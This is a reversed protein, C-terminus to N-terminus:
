DEVKSTTIPANLTSAQVRNLLNSRAVPDAFNIPERDKPLMSYGATAVSELISGAIAMGPTVGRGLLSPLRPVDVPIKVSTMTPIGATANYRYLENNYRMLKTAMFGLESDAQDRSIEGRKVAEMLLGIATTYGTKTDVDGLPEMIKSGLHTKSFEPDKALQAVPLPAYFNNEGRTIDKAYTTASELLEANTKEKSPKGGPGMIKQSRSTSRRIDALEDNLKGMLASQGSSLNPHATANFELAAVPTAAITPIGGTAIAHGAQYNIAATAAYAPNFKLYSVFEDYSKFSLTGTYESGANIRALISNEAEARSTKDSLALELSQRQLSAQERQAEIQADQVEAARISRMIDFTNNKLSTVAQIGAANTKLADIELATVKSNIGAQAVRAAAHATATTQSQAIADQTARFSQVSSNISSIQERTSKVQDDVAKLKRENFPLLLYDALWRVPESFMTRPNNANEVRAAVERQREGLANSQQILNALAENALGPVAGATSAFDLTAKQANAVAMAETAKILGVDEATGKEIDQIDKITSVQQNFLTELATAAADNRTIAAQGEAALDSTPTTATAMSPKGTLQNAINTRKAIAGATDRPREYFQSVVAAADGASTTKALRRGASQEKGARLEHDIFAVQEELSSERIDKGSFEKFDAQRDPHWQALGYAKGGDGVAQHNFSSEAQLNAAIGTAHENSWGLGQLQKIVQEAISAM